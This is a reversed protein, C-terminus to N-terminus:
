RVLLKLMRDVLPQYKEYNKFRKKIERTREFLYAYEEARFLSIAIFHPLQWLFLIGFAIWFAGWM